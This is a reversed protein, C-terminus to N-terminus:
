GGSQRRQLLGGCTRRPGTHRKMLQSAGLLRCCSCTSQWVIQGASVPRQKLRAHCKQSCLPHHLRPKAMQSCRVQLLLWAHSLVPQKRFSRFREVSPAGFRLWDPPAFNVAEACNLGM